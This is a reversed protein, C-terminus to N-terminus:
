HKHTGTPFHAFGEGPFIGSGGGPEPGSGGGGIGPWEDCFKEGTGGGGFLATLVSPAPRMSTRMTFLTLLLLFM